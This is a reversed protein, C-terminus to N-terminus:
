SSKILKLKGEIKKSSSSSQFPNSIMKASAQPSNKFKHPKEFTQRAGSSM